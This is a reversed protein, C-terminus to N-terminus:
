AASLSNDRLFRYVVGRSLHNTGYLLYHSVELNQRIENVGSWQRDSSMNNDQYHLFAASFYPAISLLMFAAICQLYYGATTIVIPFTAKNVM